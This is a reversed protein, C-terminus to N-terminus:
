IELFCVEIQIRTRIQMFRLFSCSMDHCLMPQMRLEQELLLYLGQKFFCLLCGPDWAIMFIM